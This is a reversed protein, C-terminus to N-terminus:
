KLFSIAYVSSTLLMDHLISNTSHPKSKHALSFSVVSDLSLGIDMVEKVHGRSLMFQQADELARVAEWYTTIRMSTDDNDM